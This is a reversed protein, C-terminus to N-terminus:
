ITKYTSINKLYQVYIKEIQRHMTKSIYGNALFIDNTTICNIIGEKGDKIKGAYLLTNNITEMIQQATTLKM